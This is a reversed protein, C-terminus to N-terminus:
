NQVSTLIGDEFYLYNHGGYCWQEHVGFSYVSRNIDSPNGWAARCQKDTMGIRVQGKNILRATEEDCNYKEMTREIKSMKARREAERKAAEAEAKKRAAEQDHQGQEYIGKATQYEPAEPHYRQLLGLNVKLTDYAKAAYNERITVLLKAPDYRYGDLEQQMAAKDATLKRCM